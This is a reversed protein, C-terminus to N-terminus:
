SRRDLWDNVAEAVAVRAHRKDNAAVCIWPNADSSTRAIMEEVAAIYDDRRARNRWDDDTLKHRKRAVRERERFRALQEDASIHLWIKLVDIGGAALDAEFDVIESYARQWAARPLLEEVREVLVRGYWSRDFIVLKGSQPMHRWFRWLYHRSAETSDPASIPVVRRDRADLGRVLRWITGGKGAADWGEFALVTARGEQQRMRLLMALRERAAKLRQKYASKDLQADLDVQKLPTRRTAIAPLRHHTPKPTHRLRRSLADRLAQGITLMRGRPDAGDLVAWPARTTHTADLLTRTHQVFDGYRQVNRWARADVRWATDASGALRQLRKAQAEADLHLWFKLILAGDDALAREFRAIRALRQAFTEETDRGDVRALLPPSYWGSLVLGCEGRPPLDRWYRALEPGATGDDHPYAMTHLFRPDMWRNLTNISEHKGAGDVGAVLLLVPFRAAERLRQQLSVLEHRLAKRAQKYAKKGVTDGAAPPFSAHGAM